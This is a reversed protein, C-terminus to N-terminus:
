PSKNKTGSELAIIRKELQELRRYLEHVTVDDPRPATTVPTAGTRHEGTCKGADHGDAPEKAKQGAATATVTSAMAAAGANMLQVTQAMMEAMADDSATKSLQKQWLDVYERALDTIDSHGIKDSPPETEAM